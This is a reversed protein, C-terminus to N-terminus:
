IVASAAVFVIASLLLGQAGSGKIPAPPAVPKPKGKIGCNTFSPKTVFRSDLLVTGVRSLSSHQDFAVGIQTVHHDLLASTAKKTRDKDDIFMMAVTNKVTDDGSYLIEDLQDGM